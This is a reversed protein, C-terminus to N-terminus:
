QHVVFRVMPTVAVGEVTVLYEVGISLRLQISIHGSSSLFKGVSGTKKEPRTATSELM